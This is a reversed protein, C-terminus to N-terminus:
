EESFDGTMTKGRNPDYVSPDFAPTVLMGEHSDDNPNFTVGSFYLHRWIANWVKIKFGLQNGYDPIFFFAAYEAVWKDYVPKIGRFTQHTPKIDHIGPVKEMAEQLLRIVLEPSYKPSVHVWLEVRTFGQSYNVITADAVEGNPVSIINNSPNRLRITRWTMDVVEVSDIDNLKIFDGIGFPRELNLVIGSFINALNGQVALGAIMAFVGGTALLSTLTQDFVFAVMGLFALTLIIGSSFIRVVNPIKRQTKRELPRWMFRESAIVVLFAYLVWWVMDYGMVVMDIHRSSLNYNIAKTILTNGLSILLLPWFLLRMFWSSTTWFMGTLHRDMQWAALSGILGFIGLYILYETAILDRTNLSDSKLVLGFDIRSFDPDQTGYGVYTPSGFSPSTYISQSLWAQELRLGFSPKVVQSDLLKRHINQGQTFGLGLVDVVYIVNNRDLDKHRFAFGILNSGYDLKSASFNYFFKGKVRYRKFLIEKGSQSEVPEGMKIEEAANMFEIQAPDFNGKYRFWISFDLEATESEKDLALLNHLEIGSYIVNTKYMFRDNVYLMKGQKLEEFYNVESNAKIPQLQTPAAIINVGDYVGIQVARKAQGDSKFAIEGSATAVRNQQQKLTALHEVVRQRLGVSDNIGGVLAERIPMLLLQAASYAHAAVWDPDRQYRSQYRSKFQQTVEGATDFLLPATMVLKDLYKEPNEKDTAFRNITPLLAAASLADTGVMRNKIGADRAKAIFQAGTELSTALFIVGLDKQERIQAVRADIAATPDSGSLPFTNYIKTGFRGYVEEFRSAMMRGSESEEMVTTIIKEGLVNRTYNALFSTQEPLATVLSYLRDNAALTAAEQTFPSIVALPNQQYFATLPATLDSQAHGIIGLVAPNNVLATVSQLRDAEAASPPEAIVSKVRRKGLAKAQNFEELYLEVGQRMSETYAASGGTVPAALGIYLADQDDDAAYWAFYVAISGIISMVAIVIFILFLGVQRTM